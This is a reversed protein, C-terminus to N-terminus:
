VSANDPVDRRHKARGTSALLPRKAITVLTSHPIRHACRTAAHNIWASSCDPACPWATHDQCGPASTLSAIVFQSHRPCYLRDGPLARLVGYLWQAPLAPHDRSCRHNQRTSKQQVRVMPAALERGERRGRQSSPPKVQVVRASRTALVDVCIRDDHGRLRADLVGHGRRRDRRDRSVPDGAHASSSM